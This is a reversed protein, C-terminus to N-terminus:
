VVLDLGGLVEPNRGVVMEVEADELTLSVQDDVHVQLTKRRRSSSSSSSAFLVQGTTQHLSKHELTYKKATNHLTSICKMQNPKAPNYVKTQNPKSTM